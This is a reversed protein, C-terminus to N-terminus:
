SSVNALLATTDHVSAAPRRPPLAPSVRRNAGHQWAAHITRYVEKPHFPKVLVDWAGMNLVEAWLREDGDRSMVVLQPPEEMGSIVELIAKWDGDQLRRESLVVHVHNLRLIDQAETVSAATLLTWASHSLIRSLVAIETANPSVALVRVHSDFDNMDPGENRAFVM